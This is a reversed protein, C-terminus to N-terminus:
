DAWVVGNQLSKFTLLPNTSHSEYLLERLNPTEIRNKEKEKQAGLTQIVVRPNASIRNIRSPNLLFTEALAANVSKLASKEISIRLCRSSKLPSTHLQLQLNQRTIM